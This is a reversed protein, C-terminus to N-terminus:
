LKLSMERHLIHAESFDPGRTAFGLKEYFEISRIQGHLYVSAMGRVRAKGILEEMLATGVKRGRWEPLVAVRGIRGDDSLRGTGVPNGERDTALAHIASSDFEDIEIEEPVKQEDVFVRRRVKTLDVSHTEWRVLRVSFDDEM